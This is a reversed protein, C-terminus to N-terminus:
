GSYSFTLYFQAEDPDDSDNVIPTSIDLRITSKGPIVLQAAVGVGGIALPTIDTVAAKNITGYAYDVFMSFQLIEGWKWSDFAPRDYFGPANFNWDVAAYIASDALFQSTAFARVSTSGGM